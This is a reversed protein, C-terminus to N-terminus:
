PLLKGRSSAFVPRELCVRVVHYRKSCLRSCLGSLASFAGASGHAHGRDYITRFLRGGRNPKREASELLREPVCSFRRNDRKGPEAAVELHEDMVDVVFLAFIGIEYWPGDPVYSGYPFKQYLLVAAYISAILSMLRDRGFYFAFGSVAAAVIIFAFFDTGFHIFFDTLSELSGSIDTGGLIDM